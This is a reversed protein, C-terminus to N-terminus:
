AGISDARRRRAHRANAHIGLGSWIVFVLGARSVPPFSETITSGLWTFVPLSDLVMAVAFYALGVDILRRSPRLLSAGLFLAGALALQKGLSFNYLELVPQLAAYSPCAIDSDALGRLAAWRPCGEGPALWLALGSLAVFAAMVALMGRALPSYPTDAQRDSHNM